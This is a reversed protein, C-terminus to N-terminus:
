DLEGNSSKSQDERIDRFEKPGEVLARKRREQEEPPMSKDVLREATRDALKSAKQAEANGHDELDSALARELLRRVAESRGISARSAWADLKSILEPPLRAGILPDKGTAPRGRKKPKVRISKRMILNYRLQSGLPLPQKWRPESGFWPSLGHGLSGLLIISEVIEAGFLEGVRDAMGVGDEFAGFRFDFREFFFKFRAAQEGGGAVAEGDSARILDAATEVDGRHFCEEAVGPALELGCADGRDNADFGYLVECCGSLAQM